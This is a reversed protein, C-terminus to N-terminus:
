SEEKKKWFHTLNFELVDAKWYIDALRKVVEICINKDQWSKGNKALDILEGITFICSNKIDQIYAMEIEEKM